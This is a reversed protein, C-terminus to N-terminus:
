HGAPWGEPYKDLWGQNVKGPDSYANGARDKGRALYIQFNENASGATYKVTTPMYRM